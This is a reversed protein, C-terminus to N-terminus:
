AKSYTSIKKESLINFSIYFFPQRIVEVFIGCCGFDASKLQVTEIYIIIALCNCDVCRFTEGILRETRFSYFVNIILNFFQKRPRNM